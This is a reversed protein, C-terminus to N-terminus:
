FKMDIEPEIFDISSHQMIQFQKSYFNCNTDLFVADSYNIAQMGEGIDGISIGSSEHQSHQNNIFNIKSATNLNQNYNETSQNIYNLFSFNLVDSFFLVCFFCLLSVIFLVNNRVSILPM